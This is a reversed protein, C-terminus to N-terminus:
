MGERVNLRQGAGAMGGVPMATQQPSMLNLRGGAPNYGGAANNSGTSMRAPIGYSAARAALQSSQMGNAYGGAGYPSISPLASSAYPQAAAQPLNAMPASPPQPPILPQGAQSAPNPPMAPQQLAAPPTQWSAPLPGSPPTDPAIAGGAPPMGPAGQMGPLAGKEQAEAKEKEEKEKEKKTEPLPKLTGADARSEIGSAINGENTLSNGKKSLDKLIGRVKDDPQQILGMELITEGGGRVLLSKDKMIRQMFADIYPKYKPDTALEPNGQLIQLLEITAGARVSEDKTPQLQDFLSRITADDLGEGPIDAKPADKSQPPTPPPQPPAQQPPLQPPPMQQQPQLPLQPPPAQPLQKAQPAIPPAQVAPSSPPLVYSNQRPLRLYLYPAVMQPPPNEALVLSNATNFSPKSPLNGSLPTLGASTAPTFANPANLGNNNLLASPPSFSATPWAVGGTPTNLPTNLFPPRPVNPLQTMGWNGTNASLPQAMGATGGTAFPPATYPSSIPQPFNAVQVAM